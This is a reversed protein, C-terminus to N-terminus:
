SPLVEDAGFAFFLQVFVDGADDRALSLFKQGDMAHRVVRM